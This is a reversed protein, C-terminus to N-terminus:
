RELTRIYQADRRGILGKWALADALRNWARPITRFEVPAIPAALALVQAHLPKLRPSRVACQGTLQQIVVQCDSVCCVRCGPYRRQVLDLGYLVAQYEAEVSTWAPARAYRWYLVRGRPTGLVVGIGASGRPPNGPTGDVHVVITRPM